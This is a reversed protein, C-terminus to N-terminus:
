QTDNMAFVREQDFVRCGRTNSVQKHSARPPQVGGDGDAARELGVHPVEQTIVDYGLRDVVADRDLAPCQLLIPRVTAIPKDSDARYGIQRLLLPDLVGNTGQCFTAAPLWRDIPLQIDHSFAGFRDMQSFKDAVERQVSFDAKMSSDVALGGDIDHLSAVYETQRTNSLCESHNVRLGHGHASGHDGAVIGACALRYALAHVAQKNGRVVNGCQSVGKM